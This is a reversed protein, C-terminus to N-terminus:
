RAIDTAAATFSFAGRPRAEYRDQAPEDDTGHGLSARGLTGGEVGRRVLANRPLAGFGSGPCGQHTLEPGQRRAVTISIELFFISIELFFTKPFNRTRTVQSGPDITSQAVILNEITSLRISFRKASMVEDSGAGSKSM